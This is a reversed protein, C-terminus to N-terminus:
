YGVQGVIATPCGTGLLFQRFERNIHEDCRRVLFESDELVHLVVGPSTLRQPKVRPRDCNHICDHRRQFIERFREELRGQAVAIAQSQQNVPLANFRAATIGFVRRRGDPHAIWAPLLDRFFRQGNRFFKNFLTQVTALSLVNEREMMKRAAMRWRWNMNNAYPELIARVPFRIDLFFDPLALAAYRSKAIITAAVIDTYADCFYADLAGVGFMWASRWLDGRLLEQAPTGHPLPGAHAVIARARGIDHQFHGFATVPVNVGPHSFTSPFPEVIHRIM